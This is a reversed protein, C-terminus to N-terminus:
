KPLKEKQTAITNLHVIQAFRANAVAKETLVKFLSAVGVTRETGWGSESRDNFTRARFSLRAVDLFASISPAHSHHDRRRESSAEGSPSCTECM